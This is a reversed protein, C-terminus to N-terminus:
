IIPIDRGLLTFGEIVPPVVHSFANSGIAKLHERIEMHLQGLMNEGTLLTPDDKHFKAGWFDDKKSIEVIEKDGTELLLDRYEVHNKAKLQLCWLMIDVKNDEFFDITENARRGDKKAVMKAGMGAKQDLIEKQYEPKHPFRMAQYLNESSYIMVDPFVRFKFGGAMNSFGGGM